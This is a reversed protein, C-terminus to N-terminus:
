PSLLGEDALCNSQRFRICILVKAKRRNRREKGAILLWIQDIGKRGQPGRRICIVVVDCFVIVLPIFFVLRRRSYTIFFPLFRFYTGISSLRNLRHHGKILVAYFLSGPVVFPPMSPFIHRQLLKQLRKGFRLQWLQLTLQFLPTNTYKAKGRALSDAIAQRRREERNRACRDPLTYLYYLIALGVFIFALPLGVPGGIYLNMAGIFILFYAFIKM